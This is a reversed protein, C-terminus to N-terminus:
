EPQKTETDTLMMANILRDFSDPIFRGKQVLHYTTDIQVSCYQLQGIWSSMSHILAFNNIKLKMHLRRLNPTFVFRDNDSVLQEGWLSLSRLGTPWNAPLVIANNTRVSCHELHALNELQSLDGLCDIFQVDRLQSSEAFHIEQFRVNYLKLVEVSRPIVLVDFDADSLTLYRVSELQQIQRALRKYDMDLDGKPYSYEYLKWEESVNEMTFDRGYIELNSLKTCYELGDIETLSRCDKIMVSRLSSSKPITIQTLNPCWEYDIDTENTLTIITCYVDCTGGSAVITTAPGDRYGAWNSRISTLRDESVDFLNEEDLLLSMWTAFHPEFSPFLGDLLVRAQTFYEGSGSLLELVKEWHESDMLGKWEIVFECISSVESDKYDGYKPGFVGILRRLNPLARIMQAREVYSIDWRDVYLHTLSNPLRAFNM